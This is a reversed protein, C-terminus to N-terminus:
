RRLLHNQRHHNQRYNMMQHRLFSLNKNVLLLSHQRHNEKM